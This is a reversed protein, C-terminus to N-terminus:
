PRRRAHEQEGRAIAEAMEKMVQAESLGRWSHGQGPGYAIHHEAPPNAKRLFDDLLQVANNLFYDDAEGVWIHLKGRLRPGLVPWNSELVLRLDYRKWHEVVSHDIKGTKGDWLPRPLGDDGRPGFVANWSCWDKGSLQWRDGRGLVREVLCEHRVTYLVDGNLQRAAPREFGHRNIYANDDHYIDILEYARFDVPDPCHSWTGQFFDPYYVQLALSVWGGTSAGDLVRAYGQGIGRFRKEVFPILEQIVADGYPGNNASNVQYPDGLPGAGDLHLLLMRPTGDALWTRRFGSDPSMMAGTETYRTGFGGIQVRLPYRRAPERDFDRPLIVGARLYIPRGHFRTLLESRLKVYRVHDTDPPLEEAPVKNTLVLKVTRDRAPDLVVAQVDSYLNGPADPLRLDPNYDFVAQAHYLGAPLRALHSLPFVIANQDVVATVGPALGKVDIGLLPNAALGTQGISERPEPDRTRGLVILLRGDQPATLIGRAVTVEFRLGTTAPAGPEAASLTLTLVLLPLFRTHM